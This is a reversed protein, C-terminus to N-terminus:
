KNTIRNHKLRPFDMKLSIKNVPAVVTQFDECDKQKKFSPIDKMTLVCAIEELKKDLKVDRKANMM